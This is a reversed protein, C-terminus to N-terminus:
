NALEDTAGAAKPQVNDPRAFNVGPWRMADERAETELLWCQGRPKMM